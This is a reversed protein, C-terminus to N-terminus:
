KYRKQVLGLNNTKINYKYVEVFEEGTYYYNAATIEQKPEYTFVILIELYKAKM